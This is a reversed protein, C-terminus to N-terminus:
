NEESLLVFKYFGYQAFVYLIMALPQFIDIAIFYMKLILMIQILAFLICSVLLWYNTRNPNMMYNSLAIGGLFSMFFVQIIHIYLGNDLENITLFTIYAFVSFFPISGLFVVGYNKIEVNKMTIYIAVIRYFLFFIVGLLVSNFENSILFINGLMSFFMAIFFYHNKVSSTKWYIAALIPVILPKLICIYTKELFFEAIVEVFAVTFFLLILLKSEISKQSEFEDNFMM